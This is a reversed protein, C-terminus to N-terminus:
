SQVSMQPNRVGSAVLLNVQIIGTANATGGALKDGTLKIRLSGASSSIMEGDTHYEGGSARTFVLGAGYTTQNTVFQDDDDEDGIDVRGSSASDLSLATVAKAGIFRVFAYAPLTALEAYGGTTVTAAVDAVDLELKILRVPADYGSAVLEGTGGIKYATSNTM